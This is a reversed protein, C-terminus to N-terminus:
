WHSEVAAHRPRDAGEPLVVQTREPSFGEFGDFCLASLGGLASGPACSLLVVWCRQVDTLPGNHM